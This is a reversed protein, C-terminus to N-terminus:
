INIVLCFKLTDNKKIFFFFKLLLLYPYDSLYKVDDVPGMSTQSM